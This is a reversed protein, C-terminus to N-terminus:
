LSLRFYYKKEFCRIKDYKQSFVNKGGFNRLVVGYKKINKRRKKIEGSKRVYEGNKNKAHEDHLTETM